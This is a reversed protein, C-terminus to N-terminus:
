KLRLDEWRDGQPFGLHFRGCKAFRVVTKEDMEFDMVVGAGKREEEVFCAHVRPGSISKMWQPVVFGFVQGSVGRLSGGQKLEVSEFKGVLKFPVYTNVGRGIQLTPEQFLEQLQDLTLSPVEIRFTPQFVTVMAFVLRAQADAPVVDGNPRVAHAEDDQFALIDGNEYIGLGDTGHSSLNATQPQGDKFGAHVAAYTSFQFIDNPISAVM